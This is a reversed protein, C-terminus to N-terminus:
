LTDARVRWRHLAQFFGTAGATEVGELRPGVALLLDFHWLFTYPHDRSLVAAARRWHPAAAEATPAALASDIAARVRADEYDVVNLRSASDGFFPSVDPDLAVQWGLLAAEYDGQLVREFLANFERTRLAVEVGVAALQAQIMQAAASRRDNGAPVLLTFALDARGAEELLRRARAPDHVPEPQAAALEPFLPGYPGTAPAAFGTMDLAELITGRDIAASLAERVRADTFAAHGGPNWAMYDYARGRLRRLRIGPEARLREAERFSSVRAADVGGARLEALRTTEEPLVRVVVTDLVPATPAAPNRVLVIRDGRRWEALTFPGSVVARDRGAAPLDARGAFAAPPLDGYVHRPLVGVGTDFLMGPYRRRFHFSVVTDGHATVSDMRETVYSLPLGAEPDALLRYTFVVDAATLPTGDSWRLGDRLRYTLRTGDSGFRWSRALALPDEERYVFAGERWEGRNLGPFLQAGLDGDLATRALPPLLSSADAEVAIVARAGREAVARSGADGGCAALLPLLLIPLLAPVRPVLDTRPRTM